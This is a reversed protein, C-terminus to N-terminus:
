NKREKIFETTRFPITKEKKEPQDSENDSNARKTNSKPM